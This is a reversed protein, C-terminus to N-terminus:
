REGRGRMILYPFDHQKMDRECLEGVSYRDARSAWVACLSVCRRILSIVLYLLNTDPWM